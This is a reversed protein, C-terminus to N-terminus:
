CPHTENTTTYSKVSVSKACDGAVVEPDLKTVDCGDMRAVVDLVAFTDVDQREVVRDLTRKGKGHM